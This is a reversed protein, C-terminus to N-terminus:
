EMPTAKNEVITKILDNIEGIRSLTKKNLM